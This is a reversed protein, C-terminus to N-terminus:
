TTPTCSAQRGDEDLLSIPPMKSRAILAGNELPLATREWWEPGNVGQMIVYATRLMVNPNEGEQPWSSKIRGLYAEFRAQGQRHFAQKHPALNNGDATYLKEINIIIIATESVWKRKDDHRLHPPRHVHFVDDRFLLRRLQSKLWNESFYASDIVVVKQLFGSFLWHRQLLTLYKPNKAQTPGHLYVFRRECLESELDLTLLDKNMFEKAKYEDPYGNRILTVGCTSFVRHATDSALVMAFCEFFGNLWGIFAIYASLVWWFQTRQLSDHTNCQFNEDNTYHVPVFWDEIRTIGDRNIRLQYDSKAPRYPNKRLAKRGLKAAESPTRGELFCAEYFREVFLFAASSTIKASMGTVSPVGAEVLRQSLNAYPHNRKTYRGHNVEASDRAHLVVTKVKNQVLVDAIRDAPLLGTDDEEDSCFHLYAGLPEQESDDIIGGHLDFHVIDFGVGTRDKMRVLHKQFASFTGPRAVEINIHFQPKEMRQVRYKVKHIARETFSPDAEAEAEFSRLRDKPRAAVLLINVIQPQSTARSLPEVPSLITNKELCHQVVVCHVTDQRLNSSELLEWLLCDLSGLQSSNYKASVIHIHM